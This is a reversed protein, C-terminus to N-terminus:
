SPSAAKFGAPQRGQSRHYDRPSRGRMTLRRPRPAPGCHLQADILLRHGVQVDDLLAPYSSTLTQATGLADGRRFVVTAGKVLERKGGDIRNLRIKPGCLDGMVAVMAQRRGAESRIHQLM